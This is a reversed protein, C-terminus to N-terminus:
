AAKPRQAYTPLKVVLKRPIFFTAPRGVVRKTEGAKLSIPPWGMVMMQHDNSSGHFAAQFVVDYPSRNYFSLGLEAGPEAPTIYLETGVGNPDFMECPIEGAEVLQERNSVDISTLAISGSPLKVWNNRWARWREVLEQLKDQRKWRLQRVTDHFWERLQQWTSLSDDDYDSDFYRSEYRIALVTRASWGIAMCLLGVVTVAIWYKM